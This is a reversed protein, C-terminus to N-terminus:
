VQQNMEPKQHLCKNHLLIIAWQELQELIKSHPGAAADKQMFALSIVMIARYFDVQNSLLEPNICGPESSRALEIVTPTIYGFSRLGGGGQMLEDMDTSFGIM